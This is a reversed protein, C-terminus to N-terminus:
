IVGLYQLLMLFCMGAVFGTVIGQTGAKAREKMLDRRSMTLTENLDVKKIRASFEEVKEWIGAVKETVSAEQNTLIDDISQLKKVIEEPLRLQQGILKVAEDWLDTKLATKVLEIKPSIKGELQEDIQKLVEGALLDVIKKADLDKLADSLENGDIM